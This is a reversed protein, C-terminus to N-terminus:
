RDLIFSAIRRPDQMPMFHTLDSLYIDTGNAFKDALTSPTPSSAFNFVGEQRIQPARLVTVPQEIREIMPWPDISASTAYISGETKPPCALEYGGESDRLLGYECYDRLVEPDWLRYPHRDVFREFMADPGTWSNRRKGVMQNTASYDPPNQYNARETIVPDILVLREFLNPLRDVTQVLCHGGM